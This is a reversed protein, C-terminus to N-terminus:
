LGDLQDNSLPIGEDPTEEQKIGQLELEPFERQPLIRITGHAAVIRGHPLENVVLGEATGAGLWRALSGLHRRFLEGLLPLLIRVEYQYVNPLGLFPLDAVDLVRHQNGQPLQRISQALQIPM